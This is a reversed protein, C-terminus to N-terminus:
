YGKRTVLLGESAWGEMLEDVTMPIKRALGRAFEGSTEFRSSEWWGNGTHITVIWM